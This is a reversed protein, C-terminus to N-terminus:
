RIASECSIFEFECTWSLKYSETLYGPLELDEMSQLFNEDGIYRWSKVLEEKEGLSLEDRNNNYWTIAKQFQKTEFAAHAAKREIEGSEELKLIREYLNLAERYENNIALYEAKKKLLDAREKRGESALAADSELEKKQKELETAAVV